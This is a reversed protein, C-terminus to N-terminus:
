AHIFCTLFYQVTLDSHQEPTIVIEEDITSSRSISYLNFSPHKHQDMQDNQDGASNFGEIQYTLIEPALILIINICM